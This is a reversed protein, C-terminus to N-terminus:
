ADWRKRIVAQLEEVTWPNLKRKPGMHAATHCPACLVAFDKITSAKRKGSALPKKHHVHASSAFGLFQADFAFGCVECVYGKAALVRTRNRQSRELLQQQRYIKAGEEDLDLTDDEMFDNLVDLTRSDLLPKHRPQSNFWLRELVRVGQGSLARVSQLQQPSVRGNKITLKKDPIFTLDPAISMADLVRMPAAVEERAIAYWPAAFSPERGIRNSVDSRPIVADVPFRGCVILRGQSNTSVIWVTDGARMKSLQAGGIVKLPRGAETERAIENQVERPRWYQLFNRRRDRVEFRHDRLVRNAEGDGGAFDSATFAPRWKLIAAAKEIVYKPPLAKGNIVLDYYTSRRRPPITGESMILAIARDLAERTLWGFKSGRSRLKTSPM